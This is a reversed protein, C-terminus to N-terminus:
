FPKNIVVLAMHAHERSMEVVTYNLKEQELAELFNKRFNLQNDIDWVDEVVYIGGPRLNGFMGKLLTIAADASHLGDDIILDLNNPLTRALAEVSGPNTQDLWYTQIRDETFLVEKDIDAGYINANPFLEKWMRLSAGPMGALGMNSTIGLNTTGIGCEFVNKIHARWPGFFQEYFDTYAHYNWRSGGGGFVDNELPSGKDSGFKKAATSFEKPHENYSVTFSHNM